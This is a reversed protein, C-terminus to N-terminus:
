ISIAERYCSAQTDTDVEKKVKYKLADDYIEVLKRLSTKANVYRDFCVNM